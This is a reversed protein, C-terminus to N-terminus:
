EDQDDADEAGPSGSDRDLGASAYFSAELLHSLDVLQLLEALRVVDM